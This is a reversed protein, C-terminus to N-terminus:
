GNRMLDLAISTVSEALVGKYPDSICIAMFARQGVRSTLYDLTRDHHQALHSRVSFSTLEQEDGKSNIVKVWICDQRRGADIVFADAMVYRFKITPKLLLEKFVLPDITEQDEDVDSVDVADLATTIEPESEVIGQDAASRQVTNQPREPVIEDQLIIEIDNSDQIRGNLYAPHLYDIIEKTSVRNRKLMGELHRSTAIDNRLGEVDERLATILRNLDKTPPPPGVIFRGKCRHPKESRGEKPVILTGIYHKRGKDFKEDDRQRRTGEEDLVPDELKAFCQHTQAISIGFRLPLVANNIKGFQNIFVEM